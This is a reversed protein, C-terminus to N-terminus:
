EGERTRSVESVPIRPPHIWSDSRRWGEGPRLHSSYSKPSCSLFNTWNKSPEELAIFGATRRVEGVVIRRLVNAIASDTPRSDV